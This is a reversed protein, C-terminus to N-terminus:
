FRAFIGFSFNVNSYMGRQTQTVDPGFPTVLLASTVSGRQTMRIPVMRIRIDGRLGFHRHPYWKLGGGINGGFKTHRHEYGFVISTDATSEHMDILPGRGYTIVTFGGTLYPIWRGTETFHFVVNGDHQLLEGAHTRYRRISLTPVTAQANPVVVNTYNSDWEFNGSQTLDFTYELSWRPTADYSVRLGGHLAFDRARVEPRFLPHFAPNVNDNLFTTYAPNEKVGTPFAVKWYFGLHGEVEFNDDPDRGDHAAAPPAAVLGAVACLALILWIRKM